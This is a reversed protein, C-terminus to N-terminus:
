RAEKSPETGRVEIVLEGQDPQAALLPYSMPMPDPCKLKGLGVIKEDHYGSPDISALTGKRLLLV